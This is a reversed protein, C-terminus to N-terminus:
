WAYQPKGYNMLRGAQVPVTSQIKNSKIYDCVPVTSYKISSTLGIAAPQQDRAGAVLSDEAATGTCRTVSAQTVPPGAHGQM